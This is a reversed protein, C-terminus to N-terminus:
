APIVTGDYAMCLGSQASTSNEIVEALQSVAYDPTFLQGQKLRGQFPKSLGTDVTGPHLGIIVTRKHSRAFEISTCKILMNLAAKSARYAYWGGLRNDSISGVRASLVGIVNKERKNIHPKIYKLIIAPAFTNINFVDHLNTMSIDTLQKEPMREDDHLTGLAIVVRDLLQGDLMEMSKRLHEENLVDVHITVLKDHNITLTSRTFAFVKNTTPQNLYHEIFATGIGGSAGFVAINM